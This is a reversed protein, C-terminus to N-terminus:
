PSFSMFALTYLTSQLAVIVMGRKEDCSLIAGRAPLDVFDRQKFVDDFTSWISFEKTADSSLVLLHSADYVVSDISHAVKKTFLVSIANVHDISADEGFASYNVEHSLWPDPIQLALLEDGGVTRGLFLTNGIGDLRKGNGYSGPADYRGIETFDQPSNLTHDTSSSFTRVDYFILEPDLPSAVSLVGREVYMGQVGAGIEQIALLTPPTDPTTGVDLSYLEPLITKQTGVFLLGRWYALSQVIPQTSSNSGPLRYAWLIHLNGRVSTDVAQVASTVGTNGVYLINGVLIMTSIGPGTDLTDVIVPHVPDSIDITWLDPDSSSASDTGLYLTDDRVILARPVSTPTLLLSVRVTSSDVEGVDEDTSSANIYLYVLRASWIDRTTSSGTQLINEIDYTKQTDFLHCTRQGFHDAIDAISFYRDLSLQIPSFSTLLRLGKQLWLPSSLSTSATLTSRSTNSIVERAMAYDDVAYQFARVSFWLKFVALAVISWVACAILVEVLSLGTKHQYLYM